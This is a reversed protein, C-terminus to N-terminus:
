GQAPAERSEWWASWMDYDPGINEGTIARLSWSAFWRVDQSGDRLAAILDPVAAMDGIRGLAWAAEWRVREHEDALARALAPIAAADGVDGLAAAAAYRIAPRAEDLAPVVADTGWAAALALCLSEIFGDPQEFAQLFPANAPREYGPNLTLRFPRQIVSAFDGASHADGPGDIAIEGAIEAGSYLYSMGHDPYLGGSARATLTVAITADAAAGPPAPEIGAALLIDEVYDLVPLEYGELPLFAIASPRRYEVTQRIDIAASAPLAGAQAPAPAALWFVLTAALWLALTAALWLNAALRTAGAM